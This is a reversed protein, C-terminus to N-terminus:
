SLKQNVSPFSLNINICLELVQAGCNAPLTFNNKNCASGKCFCRTLRGPAGPAEQKTSLWDTPIKKKWIQRNEYFLPLNIPPWAKLILFMIPSDKFFLCIVSIKRIQKTFWSKTWEGIEWYLLQVGSGDGFRFKSNILQFPHASLPPPVQGFFGALKLWKQGM